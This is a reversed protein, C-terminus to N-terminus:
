LNKMLKYKPIEPMKAATAYELEGESLEESLYESYKDILATLKDKQRAFKQNGSIIYMLKEVKSYNKMTEIM